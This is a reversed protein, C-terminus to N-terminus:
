RVRDNRGSMRAIELGLKNMAEVVRDAIDGNQNFAEKVDARMNDVRKAWSDQMEKIAVVWATNAKELADRCSKVAWILGAALGLSVFALVTATIGAQSTFWTTATGVQDPTPIDPM